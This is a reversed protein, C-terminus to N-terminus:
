YGEVVNVDMLPDNVIIASVGIGDAIITSTFVRCESPLGRVGGNLVYPEQVLVLNILFNNQSLLLGLECTSSYSKQLNLQIVELGQFRSEEMIRCRPGEVERM